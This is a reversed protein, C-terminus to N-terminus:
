QTRGTASSLGEATAHGSHLEVPALCPIAPDDDPTMPITMPHGNGVFIFLLPLIIAFHLGFFCFCNQAAELDKSAKPVM